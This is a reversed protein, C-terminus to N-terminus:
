TPYDILVSPAETQISNIYSTLGEHCSGLSAGGSYCGLAMTLSTDVAPLVCVSPQVADLGACAIMWLALQELCAVKGHAYACATHEKLAAIARIARKDGTMMLNMERSVMLACIQSEGLDLEVGMAVAASELEAALALEESRPEIAAIVSMAEQFHAKAEALRPEKLKKKLKGTVVFQAAAIMGFEKSEFPALALLQKLLKYSATKLLVDTDILAKSM